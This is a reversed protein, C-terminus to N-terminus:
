NQRKQREEAVRRRTEDTLAAVLPVLRPDAAALAALQRGITEADGRAAPGTIAAAPAGPDVEALAGRALALYGAGVAPPLGLRRALAAAAAVLTVAGGAALSAALHYLLRHEEPIVVPVGGWAEALRAALREAPPDGGIGFVAGRAAAPDPLPRPFALLPHLTGVASGAARLPALAGAGRSGATHLAVAAQPRRALAAAVADLAPDAVAVLLLDCGGSTFREFPVPEAGLDRALGTDARHVAVAVARAGAAAAWRALSSGVRGAGALAFTLGALV